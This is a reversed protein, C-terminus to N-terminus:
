LLANRPASGDSLNLTQKQPYSRGVAAESPAEETKGLGWTEEVVM